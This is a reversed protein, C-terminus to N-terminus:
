TSSWGLMPLYTSIITIRLRHSTDTTLTQRSFRDPPVIKLAQRAPATRPHFTQFPRSDTFHTQHRLRSPPCRHKATRPRFYCAPTSPSTSTFPELKSFSRVIAKEVPSAEKAFVRQESIVEPFPLHAIAHPGIRTKALASGIRISKKTKPKM